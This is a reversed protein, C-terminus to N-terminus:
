SASSARNAPSEALSVDNNSPEDSSSYRAPRVPRRLAAVAVVGGLATIVPIQWLATPVSTLEAVGGILTPGALFAFYGLSSVAAIAPGAKARGDAAASFAVPVIISLGIGLLGFGVVAGAVTHTALGLALGVSGIATVAVISRLRGFVLVVRDGVMRGTTQMAMFAAYALGVHAASAQLNDRLLIGSWDAVSGESLMATMAAVGLLVLRVDLVQFIGVRHDDETLEAADPVPDPLLWRSSYGCVVVLVAAVALQQLPISFHTAAGVIGVAAGALSGLSWSAHFASMIPRRYAKEVTVAQANMSVDMSGIGLGWMFMLACLVPLTGALGPLWAVALMYLTLYRTARASGWWAALRGALSMSLISGIAPMLLAIALSGPSLGLRDKIEPIRPAWSGFVMGAAIFAAFTAARARRLPASVRATPRLLDTFPTAVRM